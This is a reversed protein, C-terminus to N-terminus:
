QWNLDFQIHRMDILVLNTYMFSNQIFHKHQFRKLMLMNLNGFLLYHSNRDIHNDM